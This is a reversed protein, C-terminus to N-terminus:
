RLEEFETIGKSYIWRYNVFAILLLLASVIGLYIEPTLLSGLVIYLVFLTMIIGMTGLMAITVSAGRKVPAAENTWNFYPKSINLRLGWTAFFVNFAFISAVIMVAMLPSPKFAVVVGVAALASAPLTLYLHEKLKSTLIDKTSIPLSKLIWLTNAELSISSATIPCMALIYFVMAVGVLAGMENLGDGMGAVIDGIMDNFVIMAIGVVALLVVGLGYNVMITTNRRFRMFERGLLASKVDSTNLQEEKYHVKKKRGKSTTVVKIFSASLIMYVLVFAAVSVLVLLLMSVVDGTAGKGMWFVPKIYTELFGAVSEKSNVILDMIDMMKTYLLIYAAFFVIVFALSVYSKKEPPVKSTALAILWGLLLSLVLGVLPFIVINIIGGVIMSATLSFYMEYVIMSVALIILNIVFDIAYCIFVRTSLILSPRIPLSLLFENDKAKYITSYSTMAGGIICFTLSIMGMIAYYAWDIGMLVFPECITDALTYFLFGMIGVLYVGAVGILLKMGVSRSRLNGSSSRGSNSLSNGLGQLEKKLLTGLM